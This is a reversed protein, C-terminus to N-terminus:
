KRAKAVLPDLIAKFDAITNGVAVLRGDIIFSPTSTVAFARQAEQRQTLIKNEITKNKLCAKFEDASLGGLAAM